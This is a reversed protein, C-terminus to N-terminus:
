RMYGRLVASILPAEFPSSIINRRINTTFTNPKEFNTIASLIKFYLITSIPNSMTDKIKELM